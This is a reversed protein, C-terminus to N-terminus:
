KETGEKPDRLAVLDAVLRHLLHELQLREETTWSATAAAVMQNRVAFFDALHEQGMRTLEVVHARGDIPDALRAVLGERELAALHRSVTSLDLDARAALESPRSAGHIHLKMILAGRGMDRAETPLRRRLEQMVQSFATLLESAAENTAQVM